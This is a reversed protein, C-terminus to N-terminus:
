WFPPLVYEPHDEPHELIEKLREACNIGMQKIEEETLPTLDEMAGEYPTGDLNFTYKRDEETYM